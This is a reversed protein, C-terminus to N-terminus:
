HTEDFDGKMVTEIADKLVSIAGENITEGTMTEYFEYFLEDPKKLSFDQFDQTELDQGSSNSAKELRLINPYISRLVMMPEYLAGSDTLIGMIYDNTDALMYIERKILDDLQGTIKRMDRLPKFAIHEYGEFGNLGMTVLTMAKKQDAESFAYKLLSGAYRIYDHKVKQPRHLHGLAVYDFDEFHNVDVIDTGGISLPRESESTELTETGAIYGHTICICRIGKKKNDRITPGIKGMIVRYIDDHVKISDDKFYARAAVPDMYPMTYFHVPGHADEIIVPAEIQSFDNSIHLGQKQLISNAFGLRESSDHNGTIAIIIIHQNMVLETLVDNLLEVAETPPVTRDFLDGSILIVDPRNQRVWEVFQKLIYTQDETMHIGHVIKGIHWDGTHLIKM